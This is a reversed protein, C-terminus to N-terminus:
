KAFIQIVNKDIIALGSCFGGLRDGEERGWYNENM